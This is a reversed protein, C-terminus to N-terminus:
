VQYNQILVLALYFETFALKLEKLTKINTKEENSTGIHLFKKPSVPESHKRNRVNHNKNEDNQMKKQLNRQRQKALSFNIYSIKEFSNLKNLYNINVFNLFFVKRKKSFSLM